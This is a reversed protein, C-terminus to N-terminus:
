EVSRNSGGEKNTWFIEETGKRPLVEAQTRGMIGSVM